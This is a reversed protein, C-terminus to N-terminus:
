ENEGGHKYSQAAIQLGDNRLIVAGHVPNASIAAYQLVRHWESEADQRNQEETKTLDHGKDPVIIEHLSGDAWTQLEIVTFSFM